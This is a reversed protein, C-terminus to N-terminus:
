IAKDQAIYITSIIPFGIHSTKPISVPNQMWLVLAGPQALSTYKVAEKKTNM